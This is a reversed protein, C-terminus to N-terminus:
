QLLIDEAVLLDRFNAFFLSFNSFILPFNFFSNPTLFISVLAPWMMFARENTLQTTEDLEGWHPVPLMTETDLIITPSNPEISLEINAHPPVGVLSVEPFYALIAPLPSFGDLQNWENALIPEGNDSVPFTQDSIRLRKGTATSADAQTFFDNPFPLM